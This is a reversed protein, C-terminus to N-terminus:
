LLDLQGDIGFLRRKGALNIFSLYKYVTHVGDNKEAVHATTPFNVNEFSHM